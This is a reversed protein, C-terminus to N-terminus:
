QPLGNSMPHLISKAALYDIGALLPCPYSGLHHSKGSIMIRARWNRLDKDYSVGLDKRNQHNQQNTALRLNSIRNDTKDGNIHDIQLGSPDEGHQLYWVVRHLQYVAGRFKFRKYGKSQLSGVEDGVEVPSQPSSKKIWVVKGTESDYSLYEGIDEPISNM